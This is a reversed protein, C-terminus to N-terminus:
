VAAPAATALVSCATNVVRLVVSLALQLAPAVQLRVVAVTAREPAATNALAFEYAQEADDLGVALKVFQFAVGCADLPVVMVIAGITLVLPTVTLLPVVM